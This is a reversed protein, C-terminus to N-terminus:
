GSVRAPESLSPEAAGRFLRTIWRPHADSLALSLSIHAYSWFLFQQSFTGAGIQTLAPGLPSMLALIGLVAASVALYQGLAVKGRSRIREIPVLAWLVFHYLVMQLFTIRVFLSVVVLVVGAIEAACLDMMQSANRFERPRLLAVVVAATAVVLASLFWRVGVWSFGLDFRLITVYSVAHFLVAAANLPSHARPSTAGAFRRLYAENLAHHLGFYVMLSVNGQYLAVTLLGLGAVSLLHAPAALVEGIQRASYRLALFYHALGLSYTTWVFTAPSNRWAVCLAATVVLSACRILLQAPM